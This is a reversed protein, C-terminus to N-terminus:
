GATKMPVEFFNFLDIIQDIRERKACPRWAGRWARRRLTSLYRGSVRMSERDASSSRPNARSQTVTEM